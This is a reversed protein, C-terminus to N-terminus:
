AIRRYRAEVFSFVGYALLGLAVVALLVPGFPQHILTQLAGSLGEAQGPNNHVAAVILFIGIIGYVVGLAAYGFRGSYIAWKSWQAGLGTLNLRKRFDAAYARYFLFGAVAIVILGVIVVLAVGFPQKLLLATWDQTSANSSKGGSGRGTVLQIAGLALAAYAVGVAADGVRTLVGKANTGVGETNFLAEIFKWLAYGILGIAVVALLFKGFPENHIAQLAGHQDTASGGYGTALKIALGGIILYVIGRAAYGLRALWIMPRSTAAGRATSRAQNVDRKVNPHTAM